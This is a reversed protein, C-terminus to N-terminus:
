GANLNSKSVVFDLGLIASLLDVKAWGAVRESERSYPPSSKTAYRLTHYLLQLSVKRYDIAYVIGHM